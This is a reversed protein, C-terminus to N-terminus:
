SFNHWPRLFARSVRSHLLAGSLNTSSIVEICSSLAHPPISLFGQCHRRNHQFQPFFPQGACCMSNLCNRRLQLLPPQSKSAHQVQEREVQLVIVLLSDEFDCAVVVCMRSISSIATTLNSRIFFYHNFFQFIWALSQVNVAKIDTCHEVLQAILGVLILDNHPNMILRLVHFHILLTIRLNM